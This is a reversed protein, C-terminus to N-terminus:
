SFHCWPLTVFLYRCALTVFVDMKFVLPTPSYPLVISLFHIRSAEKCFPLGKGDSFRTNILRNAAMHSYVLTGEDPEEGVEQRFYETDDDSESDDKGQFSDCRM